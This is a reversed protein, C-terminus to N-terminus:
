NIDPRDIYTCTDELVHALATCPVGSEGLRTGQARHGATLMLGDTGQCYGIKLTQRVEVPTACFSNWPGVIDEPWPQPNLIQRNVESWSIAPVVAIVTSLPKYIP